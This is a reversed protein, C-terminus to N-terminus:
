KKLTKKICAYIEKKAHKLLKKKKSQSYGSVQKRVCDCETSLTHKNIKM